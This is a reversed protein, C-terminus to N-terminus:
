ILLWLFLRACPLCQIFTQPIFSHINELDKHSFMKFIICKIGMNWIELLDIEDEFM